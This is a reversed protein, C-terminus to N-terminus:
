AEFTFVIVVFARVPTGDLMACKEYQAHEVADRAEEDFSPYGSTVVVKTNTIKGNREVVGALVVRGHVHRRRVDEPVTPTRMRRNLPETAREKITPDWPDIIPDSGAAAQLESQYAKIRTSESDSAHHRAKQDKPFSLSSCLLVAFLIPIQRRGRLPMKVLL